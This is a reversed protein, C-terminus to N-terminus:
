LIPTASFLTASKKKLTYLRRLGGFMFVKKVAFIWWDRQLDTPGRVADPDPPIYLSCCHCIVCNRGGGGSRSFFCACMFVPFGYM